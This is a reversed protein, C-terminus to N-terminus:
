VDSCEIAALRDLVSVFTDFDGEPMRGKIERELEEAAEMMEAGIKKSKNTLFILLSRRDEPDNRREVFGGREMRDLVGTLTSGDMNVLEALDKFKLGDYKWLAHFVFFQVPTIDYRALKKEYYRQVKRMVKGLKFCMYRSPGREKRDSPM